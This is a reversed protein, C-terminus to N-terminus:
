DPNPWHDPGGEGHREDFRMLLDGRVNEPLNPYAKGSAILQYERRAVEPDDPVPYADLYETIWAESLECELQTRQEDSLSAFAGEGTDIQHILTDLEQVTSPPEFEFEHNM